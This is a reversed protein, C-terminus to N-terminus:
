LRHSLHHLCVLQLLHTSGVETVKSRNYRTFSFRKLHLILIDPLNWLDLKKTAQKHQKCKNCYWSNDEELVEEELMMGLCRELLIPGDDAEAELRAAAATGAGEARMRESETVVGASHWEIESGLTELCRRRFEPNWQIAVFLADFETLPVTDGRALSRKVAEARDGDTVCLTYPPLASDEGDADSTTGTHLRMIEPQDRRPPTGGPSPTDLAFQPSAGGVDHKSRKRPHSSRGHLHGYEDLERPLLRRIHADVCTYLDNVTFETKLESLLLPSGVIDPDRSYYSQSTKEAHQFVTISVRDSGCANATENWSSTKFPGGAPFTTEYMVHVDTSGSEVTEDDEFVKWFKNSYVEHLSLCESSLGFKGAVKQRLDRVNECGLRLSVPPQKADRFVLTLEVKKATVPLPVTLTTVPDFTVSVKDCGTAPCTVTSKYQGATHDAIVSDNRLKHIRWAEAAIEEDPRGDDEPAQTLPKKRCRNLDEHLGDLLFTILEQSDHQQYGSFQPAFDELTRKFDRPTVASYQGCFLKKTLARFAEAMEGKCGLPNDRNLDADFVTSDFYRRLPVAHGICQLGSAMFCTNGLNMMGCDGPRTDATAERNGDSYGGGFGGGFGGSSGTRHATVVTTTAAASVSHVTSRNGEFDITGDDRPKGTEFDTAQRIMPLTRKATKSPGGLDDYASGHVSRAPSRSVTVPPSPPRSTDTCRDDDTQLVYVSYCAQTAVISDYNVESEDDLNGCLVELMRTKEGRLALDIELLEEALAKVDKMTMDQTVELMQVQDHALYGRVTNIKLRAKDVAVITSNNTRVM